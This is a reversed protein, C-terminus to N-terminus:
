RRCNLCYQYADVQGELFKIKDHLEQNEKCKLGFEKNRKNLIDEAEHLQSELYRIRTKLEYNEDMISGEKQITTGPIPNSGMRKQLRRTKFGSHRGTEGVRCITAHVPTSGM